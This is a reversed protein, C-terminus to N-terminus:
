HVKFLKGNVGNVMSYTEMKRLISVLVMLKDMKSNEKTGTVKLSGFNEKVMLFVKSRTERMSEVKKGILMQVMMVVILRMLLVVMKLM